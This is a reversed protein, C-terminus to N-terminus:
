RFLTVATPLRGGESTCDLDSNISLYLWTIGLSQVLGTLLTGICSPVIVLWASLEMAIYASCVLLADDSTLGIIAHGLFVAVAGLWWVSFSIHATLGFKRLRSTMTM